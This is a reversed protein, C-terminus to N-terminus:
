VPVTLNTCGIITCSRPAWIAVQAKQLTVALAIVSETVDRLEGRAAELLAAPAAADGHADVSARRLFHALRDTARDVAVDAVRVAELVDVGPEAAAGVRAALDYLARTGLKCVHAAPLDAFESADRAQLHWSPVTLTSVAEAPM